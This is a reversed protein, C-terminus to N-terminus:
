NDNGAQGIGGDHQHATRPNPVEQRAFGGSLIRCLGEYPDVVAFHGGAEPTIGKEIGEKNEEEEQSTKLGEVMIGFHPMGFFFFFLEFFVLKTGLEVLEFANHVGVEQEIVEIGKGGENALIGDLCLGEEILQGLYEAVQEPIVLRLEGGEFQLELEYLGIIVQQLGSIAAADTEVNVEIFFILFPAQRGKGELQQYFIRYLVVSELFFVWQLNLQQRRGTVVEHHAVSNKFPFAHHFRGAKTELVDIGAVFHEVEGFYPDFFVVAMKSDDDGQYFGLGIPLLHLIM